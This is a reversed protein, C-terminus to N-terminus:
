LVPSGEIKRLACGQGHYHLAVPLRTTVLDKVAELGLHHRHSKAIILLGWTPSIQKILDGAKVPLVNARGFFVGSQLSNSTCLTCYM